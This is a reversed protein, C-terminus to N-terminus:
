LEGQDIVGALAALAVELQNSDPERTTLRQLVVGPYLLIRALLSSSGATWKVLEYSVGALVPLLALRLGLKILLSSPSFLSFFLISLVVVLLLFSTGCRPNFRSCAAASAVTLPQEQEWCAIVKHEAGHYEFTRKIDKALSVLLLYGVFLVIRLLGEALNLGLNSIGLRTLPNVLLAPLLFFLGIGLVLSMISILALQSKSIEEEPNALNASTALSSVAGALSECLVVIGRILPLRFLPYRSGLTSIVTVDTLIEGNEGRVAIAQRKPSRLMVGELVAQGGINSPKM